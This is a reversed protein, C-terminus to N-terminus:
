HRSCSPLKLDMDTCDISHLSNILFQSSRSKQTKISQKNASKMPKAVQGIVVHFIYSNPQQRYYYLYILMSTTLDCRLLTQSLRLEASRHLMRDPSFFISLLVTSFSSLQSVHFHVIHDLKNRESFSLFTERGLAVNRTKVHDACIKTKYALM